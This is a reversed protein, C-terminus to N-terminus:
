KGKQGVISLTSIEGSNVRKMNRIRYVPPEQIDENNKIFVNCAGVKNIGEAEIYFKLNRGVEENSINLPFVSELIVEGTEDMVIKAEIM